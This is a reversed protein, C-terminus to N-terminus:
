RQVLENSPSISGAGHRQRWGAMAWIFTIVGFVAAPAVVFWLVTELVSIGAGAEEGPDTIYAFASTPALAAAIGIVSAARLQRITKTM